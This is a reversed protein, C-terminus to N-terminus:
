GQLATAAVSRFDLGAALRTRFLGKPFRPPPANALRGKTEVLELYIPVHLCIILTQLAGPIACVM